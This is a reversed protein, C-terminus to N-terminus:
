AFQLQLLGIGATHVTVGSLDPHGGSLSRYLLRQYQERLQREPYRELM